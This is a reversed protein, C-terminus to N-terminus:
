RELLVSGMGLLARVEEHDHGAKTKAGEELVHHSKAFPKGTIGNKTNPDFLQL